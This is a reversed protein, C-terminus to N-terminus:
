PTMPQGSARAEITKLLRLFDPPIADLATTARTLFEGSFNADLRTELWKKFDKPTRKDDERALSHRARLERWDGTPYPVLESVPLYEIVDAESLGHPTLRDARGDLVVRQLLERMVRGESDGALCEAQDLVGVAAELEGRQAYDSATEWTEHLAATLINDLMVFIHASTYDFLFAIRAASLQHTGRLPLVEVRHRRMEDGFLAELVVQDHLGEVLVIGRQRRLLDSPLLGLESMSNRAIPPLARLRRRGQQRSVEFLRADEFDLLEPSHTAILLSTGDVAGTEGLYRALHSEASRHLAAEPEDLLILREPTPPHSPALAMQISWEAWASQARSLDSLERWSLPSRPDGWPEDGEIFWEVRSDLSGVEVHLGLVPADVLARQFHHNALHELDTVTSALEPSAVVGAATAEVQRDVTERLHARTAEDLNRDGIHMRPQLEILHSHRGGSYGAQTPDLASIGANACALVTQGEATIACGEVNLGYYFDLLHDDDQNDFIEWLTAAENCDPRGPGTAVAPASLWEPRDPSGYAQILLLRTQQWEEWVGQDLDRDFPKLIAPADTGLPASSLCRGVWDLLISEPTEGEGGHETLSAGAWDRAWDARGTEGYWDVHGHLRSPLQVVAVANSRHGVWFKEIDRIIRTKGAGNLGYLVTVGPAVPLLPGAKGPIDQIVFGLLRAQEPHPDGIVVDMM